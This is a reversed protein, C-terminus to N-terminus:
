QCAKLSSKSLVHTIRHSFIVILVMSHSNCNCNRNLDSLLLPSIWIRSITNTMGNVSAQWSSTISDKILWSMHYVWGNGAIGIVICHIIFACSTYFTM